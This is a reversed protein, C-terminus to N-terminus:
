RWTVPRGRVYAKPEAYVPCTDYWSRQQWNWHWCGGAIAPELNHLGPWYPQDGLEYRKLPHSLPDASQAVAPTGLLGLALGAMSLFRLM